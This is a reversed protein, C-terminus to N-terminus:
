CIPPRLLSTGRAGPHSQQDSGPVADAGTYLFTPQLTSAFLACASCTGMGCGCACHDTCLKGLPTTGDNVHQHRHNATADSAPLAHLTADATIETTASHGHHHSCVLGGMGSAWGMAPLTLCLLLTLIFRFKSM